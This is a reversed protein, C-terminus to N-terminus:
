LRSPPALSERLVLECRYEVKDEVAQGDLMRFLLEGAVRGKEFGPQRVTSLKPAMRGAEPIDDFGIISIDGPVKFGRKGAEELLGIAVIDAMTVVATPRFSSLVESALEQGSEARTSCYRLLVKDGELELGHEELARRYGALRWAVVGGHANEEDVSVPIDLALIAIREHGMQLVQSMQAYAAAEDDVKIAPVGEAPEGDITVFPIHRQKILQVVRMEPQLGMTIFGDVAANRVANFISRKVPPIVTLSYEMEQCAQGIGLLILSMYPNAFAEPITQPVLFGLTGTKKMSLKRAIPDPVYGLEEAVKLIKTRTSASIRGPDNFAFSVSTKSFGSVRAIDKITVRM